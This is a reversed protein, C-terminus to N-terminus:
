AFIGMVACANSSGATSQMTKTGTSTLTGHGARWQTGGQSYSADNSSTAFGTFNITGPLNDKRFFIGIGVGGSTGASSCTLDSGSSDSATSFASASSLGTVNYVAVGPRYIYTNNDIVINATTGLSSTDAILIGVYSDDGSFRQQVISTCSIGGITATFDSNAISGIAIVTYRDGATAGLSVSSFTHPSATVDGNGVTTVYSISAASSTGYFDAGLQIEGSAPANGLGYYESLGIPNSGGFETQLQSFKIEGSSPMAM